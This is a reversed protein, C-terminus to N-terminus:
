ESSKPIDIPKAIGADPVPASPDASQKAADMKREEGSRESIDKVGKGVLADIFARANIQIRQAGVRSVPEIAVYVGSNPLLWNNYKVVFGQTTECFDYDPSDSELGFPEIKSRLSVPHYVTLSFGKTSELLKVTISRFNTAEYNAEIKVVCGDKVLLEPVSEVHIKTLDLEFSVGNQNDGGFDHAVGPISDGKDTAPRWGFVQVNDVHVTFGHLKAIEDKAARWRVHNQLRNGMARCQYTLVDQVKYHPGEDDNEIPEVSITNHYNERYPGGIFRLLKASYFKYFSNERNLDNPNEFYRELVTKQLKELQSQNLKAIYSSQMILESLASAFYERTDKLQLIIGIIALSILTGAINTLVAALNQDVVSKDGYISFILLAVGLVFWIASIKVSSPDGKAYVAILCIFLVPIAFITAKLLSAMPLLLVGVVIVLSAITLLVGVVGFEKIRIKKDMDIM